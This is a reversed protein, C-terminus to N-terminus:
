FLIATLKQVANLDKKNSDTLLPMSEKMQNGYLTKGFQRKIDYWRGESAGPLLAQMFNM